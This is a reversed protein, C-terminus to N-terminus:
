EIISNRSIKIYACGLAKIRVGIYSSNDGFIHIVNAKVKCGGLIVCIEEGVKYMRDAFKVEETQGVIQKLKDMEADTIEAHMNGITKARDLLYSKIFPLLILENEEEKTIHVFLIQTIIVQMKKKRKIRDGNKWLCIREQAALFVEYNLKQLRELCKRETNPLVRVILWRRETATKVKTRQVGVADGTGMVTSNERLSHETIQM